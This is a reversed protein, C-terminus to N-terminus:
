IFPRLWFRWKRLEWVPLATLLKLLFLVWLGLPWVGEEEVLTLIKALEDFWPLPLAKLERWGWGDLSGATAKKRKVVDFLMDGTLSPLQFVDLVPLWGGEVEYSFDELDAAGRGARCFYPMWAERFKADILAPDALIGSGEPTDKPDCQLFPSPPVLDPRLWQYPRIEPDEMLWARWGQVAKDRRSRVIAQLFKDLDLHLSAVLVEMDAIGAGSVRDLAEATVNGMPGSALIAEWQRTLDLGRSM